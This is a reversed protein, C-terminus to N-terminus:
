VFLAYGSPSVDPELECLEVSLKEVCVPSSHGPADELQILALRPSTAVVTGTAGFHDGWTVTVRDGDKVTKM